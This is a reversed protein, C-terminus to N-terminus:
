VFSELYKKYKEETVVHVASEECLRVANRCLNEREPIQKVTWGASELLKSVIANIFLNFSGRATVALNILKSNLYLTKGNVDSEGSVLEVKIRSPTDLIASTQIDEILNYLAHAEYCNNSVLPSYETSVEMIVQHIKLIIKATFTKGYKHSSILNSYNSLLGKIVKLNDTLETESTL